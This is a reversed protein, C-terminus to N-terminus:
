TTARRDLRWGALRARNASQLSEQRDVEDNVWSEPEVGVIARRSGTDASIVSLGPLTALDLSPDARGGARASRVADAVADFDNMVDDYTFELVCIDKRELENRRALDDAIKEVSQSHYARGDLYISVDPDRYECDAVTIRRGGLERYVQLSPLPLGAARLRTFFEQELFSELREDEPTIGESADSEAIRRLTGIVEFRNLADHYRQNWFDRLCRHCSTTCTCRTLREAAELAAAKLGAAGDAFLKPLYGTGGPM